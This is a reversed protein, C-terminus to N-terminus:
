PTRPDNASLLGYQSIKKRLTGRSMGLTRAAFTQNGACHHLVTELLPREVEDLVFRYLDTIQHDGMRTLYSALATRVCENLPIGHAPEVPGADESALAQYTNPDNTSAAGIRM